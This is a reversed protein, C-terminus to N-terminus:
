LEKKNRVTDIKSCMAIEIIKEEIEKLSRNSINVKLIKELKKVLYETLLKTDLIKVETKRSIIREKSFNIDSVESYEELIYKGSQENWGIKFLIDYNDISYELRIILGKNLSTIYLCESFVCGSIAYPKGKIYKAIDMGIECGGLSSGGSWSMYYIDVPNVEPNYKKVKFKLIAFALHKRDKNQFVEIGIINDFDKKAQEIFKSIEKYLINKIIKVQIIDENELQEEKDFYLLLDYADTLIEHPKIHFGNFNNYRKYTDNILKEIYKSRRTVMRVQM